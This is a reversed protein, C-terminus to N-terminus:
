YSYFTHKLSKSQEAESLRKVRDCLASGTSEM